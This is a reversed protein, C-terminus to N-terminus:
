WIHISVGRRVVVSRRVPPPLLRPCRCTPDQTIERLDRRMERRMERPLDRLDHDRRRSSSSRLEPPSLWRLASLCRLPALCRLPPLCSKRPTCAIASGEAIQLPREASGAGTAIQARDRRVEARDRRIEVDRRVEACATPRLLQQTLASGLSRLGHLLRLSCRRAPPACARTRASSSSRRACTLTPTLNPSPNPNVPM